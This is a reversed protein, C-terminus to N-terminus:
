GKRQTKVKQGYLDSDYRFTGLDQKIFYIVQLKLHFMQGEAEASKRTQGLHTWLRSAQSNRCLHYLRGPAKVEVLQLGGQHKHLHVKDLRRTRNRFSKFVSDTSSSRPVIGPGTSCLPPFYLISCPAETSSTLVQIFPGVHFSFQGEWCMSKKLLITESDKRIKSKM